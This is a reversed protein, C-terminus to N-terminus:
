MPHIGFHFADDICLVQALKLQVPERTRGPNEPADTVCLSLPARRMVCLEVFQEACALGYDSCTFFALTRKWMRWSHQRPNGGSCNIGANSFAMRWSTPASDAPKKQTLEAPS